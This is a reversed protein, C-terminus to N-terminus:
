CGRQPKSREETYDRMPMAIENKGDQDISFPRICVVLEYLYVKFYM